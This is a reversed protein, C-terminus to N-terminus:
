VEASWILKKLNELKSMRYKKRHFTGSFSNLYRSSDVLYIM